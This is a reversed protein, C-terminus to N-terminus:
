WRYPLRKDFLNIFTIHLIISNSNKRMNEYIELVEPLEDLCQSLTNPDPLPYCGEIEEKGIDMLSVSIDKKNAENTKKFSEELYLDRNQGSYFPNYIEASPTAPFRSDHNVNNFIPICKENDKDILYIRSFGWSNKDFKNPLYYSQYKEKLQEFSTILLSQLSIDREVTLTIYFPDEYEIIFIGIHIKDNYHILIFKKIIEKIIEIPFINLYMFIKMLLMSNQISYYTQKGYKQKYLLTQEEEWLGDWKDKKGESIQGNYINRIESPLSTSEYFTHRNFNYQMVLAKKLM